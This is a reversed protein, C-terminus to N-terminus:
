PDHLSPYKSARYRHIIFPMAPAPLSLSLSLKWPRMFMYSSAGVLAWWGDVWSLWASRLSLVIWDWVVIGRECFGLTRSVDVERTVARRVAWGGFEWDKRGAWAFPWRRVPVNVGEGVAGDREVAGWKEAGEVGIVRRKEEEVPRGAIGSVSGFELGRPM